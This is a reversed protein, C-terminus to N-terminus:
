QRVGKLERASQLMHETIKEGGLMRALERVSGEEDLRYIHTQTRGGSVNKEIFFHTDAAAAIPPLHTICIVQRRRGLLSLKEAVRGATIGSIGTDIEDFILTPTQDRDALLTKFALMVRSLEGGSAIESLLRLPEGPNTSLLIRVEDAGTSSIHSLPVIEISLRAQLFNLDELEKELASALAQATKKRLQTLSQCEKELEHRTKEMDARLAETQRDYDQLAALRSRGEELYALIDPITRGYRAKLRNITDLRQQVEYMQEDSFDMEERLRDLEFACDQLTSEVDSLLDYLKKGEPMDAAGALCQLAMGIRSLAGEDDEASVYYHAGQLAERAKEAGSMIRYQEELAEDEGCQLDAEELEGVEHTLLDIQRLRASEDMSFSEYAKKKSQFSGYLQSVKKLQADLTEDGYGDVLSLHHRRSLLQQSDHQGHVDILLRAVQRVLSVPVTEGNIRSVSKKKNMRRTLVVMGDVPVVDLRALARILEPEDVTFALEALAPQEENRLMDSQYKGGLALSVSGLLISKGAGTEGTLANFGEGLDLDAEDILALNKVHINQLM